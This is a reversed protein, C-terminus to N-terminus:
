PKVWRQKADSYILIPVGNYSLSRARDWSNKGNLVFLCLADATSDPDPCARTVLVQTQVLAKYADRENTARMLANFVITYSAAVIFTIFYKM